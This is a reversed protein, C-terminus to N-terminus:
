RDMGYIKYIEDTYSGDENYVILPDHFKLDPRGDKVGEILLLNPKKNIKAQVFRIYKPEIKYKRMTYLIDTLRDPRHVIYIRGLPKLLYDSIRIIDEFNCAIEHRSLAFNENENVIAGGSKMYPPNSIITDISSKKFIQGLNKLDMNVIEIKEELRNLGISARAINAVDEQIEVGYVKHVRPNNVIRLPIIGTGTGLDVVLGKPKAFSSIFIADTGYSFRERDQYIKLETGPVIDIKLNKKDMGIRRKPKHIRVQRDRKDIYIYLLFSGRPDRKSPIVM